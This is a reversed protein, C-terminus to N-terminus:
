DGFGLDEWFIDDGTFYSNVYSDTLYSEAEKDSLAAYVEKYHDEGIIEKIEGLNHFAEDIRLKGKEYEVCVLCM